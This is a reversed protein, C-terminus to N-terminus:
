ISRDRSKLVKAQSHSIRLGLVSVLILLAGATSNVLSQGRISSNLAFLIVAVGLVFLLALSWRSGILVLLGAAMLTLAPGRMERLDHGWHSAAQENALVLLLLCFALGLVLGGFARFLRM